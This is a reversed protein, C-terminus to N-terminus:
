QFLDTPATGSTATNCTDIDAGTHAGSEAGTGKQINNEISSQSLPTPLTANIVVCGTSSQRDQTCGRGRLLDPSCPRRRERFVSLHSVEVFQARRLQRRM